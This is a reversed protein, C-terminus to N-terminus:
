RNRGGTDDTFEIVDARVIIRPLSFLVLYLTREEQTVNVLSVAHGEVPLGKELAGMANGISPSVIPIFGLLAFGTDEGRANARIVRFNARELHTASQTAHPMVGVGTACGVGACIGAIGLLGLVGKARRTM